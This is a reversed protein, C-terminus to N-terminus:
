EGAQEGYEIVKSGSLFTKGEAGDEAIIRDYVARM